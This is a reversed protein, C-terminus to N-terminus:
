ESRQLDAELYEGNVIKVSEATENATRQSITAAAKGDDFFNPFWGLNRVNWEHSQAVNDALPSVNEPWKFATRGPDLKFKARRQSETHCSVCDTNFFHSREPNAVHDALDRNTLEDDQIMAGDEGVGIKAKEDLMREANSEFLPATSIGRRGGDSSIGLNTTAPKPLVRPQDRFSLMQATIKRSPDSSAFVPIPLPAFRESPTRRFLGVFVWPEPSPALGMMAM